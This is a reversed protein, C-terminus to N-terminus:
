KKSTSKGFRKRKKTEKINTNILISYVYVIKVRINSLINNINGNVTGLGCRVRM